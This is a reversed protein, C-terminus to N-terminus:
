TPTRRKALAEAGARARRVDAPVESPPAVVRPPGRWVANGVRGHDNDYETQEEPDPRPHARRAGRRRGSKDRRRAAGGDRRVLGLRGIRAPDHGRADGPAERLRRVTAGSSALPGLAGHRLPGHGGLAHGAHGAARQHRLRPAGLVHGHGEPVAAAAPAECRLPVLRAVYKRERAQPSYEHGRRTSPTPPAADRQHPLATFHTSCVDCADGKTIAALCGVSGLGRLLAQRLRKQRGRVSRNFVNRFSGKDHLYAVSAEPNKTCFAHLPTLTREEHGTKHSGLRRCTANVERCIRAVHNRMKGKGITSYRIEDVENWIPAARLETLQEYVIEVATAVNKSFVNYYVVLAAARPFAAAAVLVALARM